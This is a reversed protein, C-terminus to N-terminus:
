GGQKLQYLRRDFDKFYPKLPISTLKFKLYRRVYM